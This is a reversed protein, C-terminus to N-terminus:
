TAGAKDQDLWRKYVLWGTEIKLRPTIDTKPIDWKMQPSVYVAIRDIGDSDKWLWREGIVESLKVDPTGAIDQIQDVSIGPKLLRYKYVLDNTSNDTCGFLLIVITLMLASKM